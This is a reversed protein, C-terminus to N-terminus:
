STVRNGLAGWFWCRDKRICVCSIQWRQQSPLFCHITVVTLKLCTIILIFM